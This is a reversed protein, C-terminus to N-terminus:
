ALTIGLSSKVLWKGSSAELVLNNGVAAAFTAVDVAAGGANFGAPDTVTHAAAGASLITLRLGDMWRSPDALTMALAAAGNLVVTTDKTPLDIPGSAGYSTYGPAEQTQTRHRAPPVAGFDTPDGFVVAALINHARASTGLDGRSRLTVITGVVKTVVAFEDEIKCIRDKSAGTNATVSIDIANADVPAALTTANLGM